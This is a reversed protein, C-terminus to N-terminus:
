PRGVGQECSGKFDRKTIIDQPAELFLGIGILYMVSQTAFCVLSFAHSMHPLMDIATKCQGFLMGLISKEADASVKKKVISLMSQFNVLLGFMVFAFAAQNRPVWSKRAEVDPVPCTSCPQTWSDYVSSGNTHFVTWRQCSYDVEIRSLTATGNLSRREAAGLPWSCTWMPLQM